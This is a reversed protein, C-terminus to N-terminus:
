EGHQRTVVPFQEGDEDMEDSKVLDMTGGHWFLICNLMPWVQKYAEWVSHFTDSLRLHLPKRSVISQCHQTYGTQSSIVDESKTVGWITSPDVNGIWLDSVISRMLIDVEWLEIPRGHVVRSWPFETPSGHEQDSLSGSWQACSDFRHKFYEWYEMPAPDDDVCATFKYNQGLGQALPGSDKSAFNINDWSVIIIDDSQKGFVEEWEQNNTAMHNSVVSATDVRHLAAVQGSPQHIKIVIMRQWHRDIRQGWLFTRGGFNTPILQPKSSDQVDSSNECEGYKSAAEAPAENNVIM